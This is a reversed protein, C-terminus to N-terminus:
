ASTAPDDASFVMSVLLGAAAGIAVTQGIMGLVPTSSFALTAFAFFTSGAALLVSLSARQRAGPEGPLTSFFLTYNSVVGVVLLLSVLHFVTLQGHLLWLVGCTLALTATITAVMSAVARPRRLQLLLVLFIAGTGLLAAQMARQRYDAVLQQVDGQLDILSLGPLAAAQLLPRLRESPPAGRLLVLVTVGDPSQVIQAQLWAGLVTGAYHALGIPAGDRTAAVDALFPEFAQAQFRGGRTAELVRARLVDAAPLAAQRAQQVAASPLLDTPSDYGGLTGERVLRDLVQTSAETRQLAEELSAGRVAVMTRLEPVGAQTRYRLDRQDEEPSSASLADLRDLWLTDQGQVLLVAFVLAALAVPWRGIRMRRSLVPLWAFRRSPGAAAAQHAYLGPLLWRTCLVAAVLGAMSFLGLQQLGAFGSFYMAAFGILSTLAALYITRWFARGPAQAGDRQVFSYIAYDVAEGILTVGFALTIGHITGYTWGVAAFGALAGTAVPVIALILFRPSRLAWLLLVAVLLLALLALQHADTGIADHAMVNFYAAGALDVVPTGSGGPWSQLVQAAHGRALQLTERLRDIEHGRARTEMLLLAVRGDDTLWVGTEGQPVVQRSAKELLELAALTPDATAIPRVMAGRASALTAELQAFARNLGEQSFQQQTTGNALLYRAAFLREREPELADMNGNSVWAFAPEAALRERLAQSADVLHRTQEPTPRGQQAGPELRLGVLLIRTSLGDRLQGLMLQQTPNAPGPLFSSVDTVVSSRSVQWGCLAVSLAWLLWLFRDRLSM